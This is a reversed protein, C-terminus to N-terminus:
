DEARYNLAGRARREEEAVKDCHEHHWFMLADIVRMVREHRRRGVYGSVTERPRSGPLFVCVLM